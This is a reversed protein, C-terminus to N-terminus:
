IDSLARSLFVAMLDIDNSFQFFPSKGSDKNIQIGDSYVEYSLVKSLNITKNGKTGTFIIRKNTLYMMGTDIPKLVDESIRHPTISGNRYKLGKIGFLNGSTYTVGSYTTRIYEKRLEHWTINTQFYMKESKQINISASITPVDGNEILWFLKYKDFLKRSAYDWINITDLDLKEKLENLQKEEDPSIREDAVINDVYRQYIKSAEESYISDATSETLGLTERIRKLNDKEESTLEGDNISWKVNNRYIEKGNEDIEKQLIADSTEKSLKLDQRRKELSLKEEETIIGDSITRNAYKKFIEQTSKEIGETVFNEPINLLDKIHKLSKLEQDSLVEDSLISTLINTFFNKFYNEYKGINKIKYKIVLSHIESQTIKTFDTENDSFLNNIERIFNEKVPIKFLRQFVTPRILPQKPFLV